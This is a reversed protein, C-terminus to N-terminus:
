YSMGDRSLSMRHKLNNLFRMKQCSVKIGRSIWSNNKINRKMTLKLPFARNFYYIFNSIFLYLQYLENVNKEVYIEEWLENSIM